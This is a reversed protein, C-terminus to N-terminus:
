VLQLEELSNVLKSHLLLLKEQMLKNQAATPLTSVGTLFTELNESKHVLDPYLIPSRAFSSQTKPPPEQFLSNNQDISNEIISNDQQRSEHVYVNINTPAPSRARLM